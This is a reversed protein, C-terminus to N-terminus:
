YNIFRFGEMCMSVGVVSVLVSCRCCRCLVKCFSDGLVVVCSIVVVYEFLM